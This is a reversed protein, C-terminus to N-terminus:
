KKFPEIEKMIAEKEAAFEKINEKTVLMIKTSVKPNDIKEGKAAKVCYEIGMKGMDTPYQVVTGIVPSDEKLLEAIIDPDEDVAMIAVDKRGASEVAALLGLATQSNATFIVDLKGKPFSTLLDDGLKTATAVNLAIVNREILEIGPEGTMVEKFGEGRGRMSTIQPFGVLAVRGKASGNKNKIYEIAYRADMRGIEVNDSAIHAMVVGGDATVDVTIVPIGADNAAQVAPVIGASDVPNLFIASVKKSAIMDEVDKLQKEPKGQGDSEIITVGLEKATKKAMALMDQFFAFNYDMLTLGIVIEEKSEEAKPEEKKEEAKPASEQKNETTDQKAPESKSGCGVVLTLMLCAIVILSLIKKM